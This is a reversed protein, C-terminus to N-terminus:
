KGRAQPISDVAPLLSIKLIHLFIFIFTTGLEMGFICLGSCVADGQSENGTSTISSTISSMVIFRFFTKWWFGMERHSFGRGSWVGSVLGHIFFPTAIAVSVSLIGWLRFKDAEFYKLIDSILSNSEQDIILGPNGHITCICSLTKRAIGIYTYLIGSHRINCIVIEILMEWM